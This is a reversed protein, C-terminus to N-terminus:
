SRPPRASSSARCRCSTAAGLPRVHPVVQRVRREVPQGVAADTGALPRGPAAHRVVRLDAGAARQRRCRRPPRRRLLAQRDLHQVAEDRQLRGAHHLRGPEQVPGDAHLAAYLTSLVGGMCYGVLNVDQEGSPRSSAACATPSSTSCTTKSACASRTPARRTGTSCSSTTARSAAPVRRPEAGARPRPHVRPQHAGDRAAAARPLDRRGAAPLPVAGAHRATSWTGRRRLGAAPREVSLYDLGKINRQLARDVEGRLRSAVSESEPNMGAHGQCAQPPAAAVAPAPASTAAGDTAPPAKRTRSPYAGAGAPGGVGAGSLRDVAAAIGALRDEIIQLREDLARVDSRSPLELAELYRKLVAETLKRRAANADRVQGAVRRFDESKMGEHVIENVGKEVQTVLDRWFSLPDLLSPQTMLRDENRDAPLTALM